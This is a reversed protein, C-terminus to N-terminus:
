WFTNIERKWRERDWEVVHTPDEWFCSSEVPTISAIVVDSSVRFAESISKVPELLHEWVDVSLVVDYSNDECNLDHADGWSVDESIQSLNYEIGTIDIGKERFDRVRSGDGAGVEM